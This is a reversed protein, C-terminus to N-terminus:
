LCIPRHWQQEPQAGIPRDGPQGTGPEDPILDDRLQKYAINNSINVCLLTNERVAAEEASRLTSNINEKLIFVSALDVAVMVLALTCLFVKQWLRM